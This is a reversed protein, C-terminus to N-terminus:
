RRYEEDTVPELWETTADLNIAVHTMATDPSAGHWHKEGAAISVTDGATVERM